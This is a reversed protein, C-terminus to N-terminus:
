FWIFMSRFLGRKRSPQSVPPKAEPTSRTYESSPAPQRVIEIAASLQDIMRRLEELEERHQLIQASVVEDAKQDLRREMHLIRTLMDDEAPRLLEASAATELFADQLRPKEAPESPLKIQEMTEGQEIATKIFALLKMDRENFIYHGFRDKRFIDPYHSAWRKVTTQSVNLSAAADKSKVLEM